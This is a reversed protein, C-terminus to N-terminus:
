GGTARPQGLLLLVTEAGLLLSAIALHGVQAAPVLSVYAMVVGLAVQAAALGAVVFAWRILTRQGGFGSRFWLVMLLSGALVVVAVARHLHDLVGVLAVAGARPVGGDLAVDVAGRVQTGIAIQIMTVLMLLL